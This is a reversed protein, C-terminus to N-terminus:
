RLEGGLVRRVMRWSHDADLSLVQYTHTDIALEDGAAVDADYPLSISYQVRMAVKMGATELQSRSKVPDVRCAVTGILVTGVAPYGLDNTTTFRRIVATGPLMKAVEARMAVLDADSLYLSSM